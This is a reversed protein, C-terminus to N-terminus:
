ETIAGNGNLTDVINNYRKINDRLRRLSANYSKVARKASQVNFNYEDVKANFQALADGTETEVLPRERDIANREAALQLKRDDLDSEMESISLKAEDIESKMQTAQADLADRDINQAGSAPADSASVNSKSAVASPLDPASAVSGAAKENTWHKDPPVPALMCNWGFLAVVSLVFALHCKMPKTFPAKAHFYWGGTPADSVLYRGLPVLPLFLAVFYLITFYRGQNDYSQRGYVRCGVTNFTGMSPPNAIPKLRLAAEREEIEAHVQNEQLTGIDDQLRERWAANMPLDLLGRTLELARKFDSNTNSIEIAENRVQNIIVSSRKLLADDWLRAHPTHLDLAVFISHFQELETGKKKMFGRDLLEERSYEPEESSSLWRDVAPVLHMEAAREWGEREFNSGTAARVVSLVNSFKKQAWLDAIVQYTYEHVQQQVRELALAVADAPADSAALSRLSGTLSDSTLARHLNTFANEADKSRQSRIFEIWHLLFATHSRSLSSDLARRAGDRMKDWDEEFLLESPIGFFWFFRYVTLEIPDGALSRCLEPSQPLHDRGFVSLLPVAPEIGVALGKALSSARRRLELMSM